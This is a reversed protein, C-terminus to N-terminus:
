QSGGPKEVGPPQPLTFSFVAGRGEGASEARIRGGHAEVIGKTIYLGLGLGRIQGATAEARYFRGFLRALAEASLGVGRDAVAVQAEPGLDEVRVVVEGGRPSYKIANGLLNAFVQGLRARDWHGELPGDPAVLRIPHVASLARAQEVAGRALAVLDTAEPRLDLRGAEISSADLLDGVLRQLLDAQGLMTELAGEDYRGRRRMLEAYGKLATLPSRLEHTVMALFESQLRELARRESIDRMVKSAGIIRGASDKVPSITLSVELRRGGKTVRVTEFHEIREGARLRALILDEEHQREPPIVRLIPQGIMEEATYGLLREASANWSTVIADLTKSVIADDSSAVIAALRASAEEDQRRATIDHHTELVLRRGSRDAVLRRHAAVTVRRGDRATQVLEGSWIGERELAAVIEDLPVPHATPLLAERVRGVAEGRSFGYLREAGRNWSVIPGGPEWAFIPVDALSGAVEQQGRRITKEDLGTIQAVLHAGGHGLRNAEVAAYWRREPEGLRSLLLNMQDHLVRDPHEEGARCRPCQCVGVDISNM